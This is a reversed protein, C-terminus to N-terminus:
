KDTQHEYTGVFGGCYPIPVFSKWGDADAQKNVDWKAKYKETTSTSFITMWHVKTFYKTVHGLWIHPTTAANAVRTTVSPQSCSILSSPSSCTVHQYTSNKSTKFYKQFISQGALGSATSAATSPALAHVINTMLANGGTSFKWRQYKSILRDCSAKSSNTNETNDVASSMNNNETNDNALAPITATNNEFTAAISSDNLDIMKRRNIINIRNGNVTHSSLERTSRDHKILSNNIKDPISVVKLKEKIINHSNDRINQQYSQKFLNKTVDVARTPTTNMPVFKELPLIYNSSKPILPNAAPVNLSGAFKLPYQHNIKVRRLFRGKSKGNIGKFSKEHKRNKSKEKFDVQTNEKIALSNRAILSSETTMM